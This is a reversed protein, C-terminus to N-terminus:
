NIRCDKFRGDFINKPFDRLDSCLGLKNDEEIVITSILGGREKALWWFSKNAGTKGTGWVYVESGWRRAAQTVFQPDDCYWVVEPNDECEFGIVIDRVRDSYFAGSVVEPTGSLEGRKGPTIPVPPEEIVAPTESAIPIEVWGYPRPDYPKPFGHRFYWAALGAVLFLGLIMIDRGLKTSSTRPFTTTDKPFNDM